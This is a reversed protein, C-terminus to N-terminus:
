THQTAQWTCEASRGAKRHAECHKTLIRHLLAFLAATRETLEVAKVDPLVKALLKLRTETKFKIVPLEESTIDDRSLDNNIAEIYKQGPPLRTLAEKKEARRRQAYSQSNEKGTLAKITKQKWSM